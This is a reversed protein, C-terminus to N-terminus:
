IAAISNELLTKVYPYNHVAAKAGPDRVVLQFNIIAGLQANTLTPFAPNGAAGWYGSPNSGSDFINLYGHYTGDTEKKLIDNGGGIANIKTALDSILQEIEDKLPKIRTSLANEDNGHCSVTCGKLTAIFTHGETYKGNTGAMHCRACSVGGGVTRHRTNTYGSGFEIGGVGAYLAAQSSYHIGFRYNIASQTYPDKPNSVLLDYNIIGTTGTVPRPQHCKACLNASAANGTFEITKTGGWMVMPVSALTTLDSWEYDDTHYDAHCTKCSIPDPTRLFANVDVVYQNASGAFNAPKNEDVVFHFGKNSHCPACDARSGQTYSTGFAHLAFNDYDNFITNVSTSLHCINCTADQGQPGDPGIPGDPGTPGTPGMPGECSTFILVSVTALSFLNLLKKM